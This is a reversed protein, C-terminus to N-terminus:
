SGGVDTGPEAAAELDVARARLIEPSPDNTVESM